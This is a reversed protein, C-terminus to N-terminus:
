PSPDFRLGVSQSNAAPISVFRLPRCRHGLLIAVAARSWAARLQDSMAARAAESPKPQAVPAAGSRANRTAVRILTYAADWNASRRVRKLGCHQRARAPNDGFDALAHWSPRKRGEAVCIAVSRS